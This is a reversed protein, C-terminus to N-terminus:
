QSWTEAGSFCLSINIYIDKKSCVRAVEAQTILTVNLIDLLTQCYMITQHSVVEPVTLAGSIQPSLTSMMHSPDHCSHESEEPSDEVQVDQRDSDDSEQDQDDDAIEESERQRKHTSQCFSLLSAKAM